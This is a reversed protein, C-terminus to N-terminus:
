QARHEARFSVLCTTWSAFHCFHTHHGLMWKSTQDQTKGASLVWQSDPPTLTQMPMVRPSIHHARTMNIHSKNTHHMWSGVASRPRALRVAAVKRPKMCRHFPTNHSCSQFFYCSWLTVLGAPWGEKKNQLLFFLFSLHDPEYHVTCSIGVTKRLIINLISREDLNMLMANM